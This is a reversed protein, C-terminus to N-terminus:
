LDRSDGLAGTGVAMWRLFEEQWWAWWPGTVEEQGQVWETVACVAQVAVGCWVACWVVVKM